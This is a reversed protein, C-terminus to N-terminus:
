FGFWFNWGPRRWYWNPYGYWFPDGYYPGWTRRVVFRSPRPYGTAVYSASVWGLRGAFGVRCWSWCAFVRLTAGAPIVAIRAHTVGPGTRMNVNTRAVGYSAAEAAAPLLVALALAGAAAISRVNM